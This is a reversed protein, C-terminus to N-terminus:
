DVKYKEMHKKISIIKKLFTALTDTSFVALTTQSDNRDEALRFDFSVKSLDKQSLILSLIKKEQDSFEARSIELTLAQNYNQIRLLRNIADANGSEALQKTLFTESYEGSAIMVCFNAYQEIEGIIQSKEEEILIEPVLMETM